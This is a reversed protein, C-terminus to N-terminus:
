ASKNDDPDTVVGADSDTHEAVFESGDEDDSEEAQVGPDVPEGNEAAEQAIEAEPVLDEGPEGYERHEEQAGGGLVRSEQRQPM